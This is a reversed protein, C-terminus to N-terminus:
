ATKKAANGPNGDALWERFISCTSSSWLNEYCIVKTPQYISPISPQSRPKRQRLCQGLSNLSNVTFLKKPRNVPKFCHFQYALKGAYFGLNNSQQLWIRSIKVKTSVARITFLQNWIAPFARPLNLRLRGPSSNPELSDVENTLCINCFFNWKFRSYILLSQHLFLSFPRGNIQM